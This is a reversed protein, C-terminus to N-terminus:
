TTGARTESMYERTTKVATVVEEKNKNDVVRVKYGPLGPMLLPPITYSPTGSYFGAVKMNNSSTGEGMHIMDLVAKTSRLPIRLQPQHFMSLTSSITSMDINGGYGAVSMWLLGGQSQLLTKIESIQASLSSLDSSNLVVEDLFIAAGPHSQVLSLLYPALSNAKYKLNISTVQINPNTLERELEMELLTKKDCDYRAVCVIVEQDDAACKKAKERMCLTKGTSWSSLFLVLCYYGLILDAQDPTWFLVSHIGGQAMASEGVVKNDVMSTITCPTGIDQSLLTFAVKKVVEKYEEHNPTAQTTDYLETLKTVLDEPTFIINSKCDECIHLKSKNNKFHMWAVYSWGTMPGFYDILLEKMNELQKAGDQVSKGNLSNKSEICIILKLKKIIVLFDHEQNGGKIAGPTKFVAGQFVTVEKDPSSAFFKKLTDSLEKETLDGVLNQSEETGSKIGLFKKLQESLSKKQEEYEDTPYVARPVKPLFTEPLFVASQQDNQSIDPFNRKILADEADEYNELCQGAGMDFIYSHTKKMKDLM